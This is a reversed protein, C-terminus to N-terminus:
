TGSGQDEPAPQPMPRYTVYTLLADEPRKEGPRRRASLWEVVHASLEEVEERTAYALWGGIFASEQRDESCLERAVLYRNLAEEDRSLIM